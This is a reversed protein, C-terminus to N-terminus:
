MLGRGEVLEMVVTGGRERIADRLTSLLGPRVSPEFIRVTYIDAPRTPILRPMAMNKYAATHCPQPTSTSSPSHRWAAKLSLAFWAM